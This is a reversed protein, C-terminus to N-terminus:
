NSIRLVPSEPLTLDAREEAEITALERDIAAILSGGSRNQSTGHTVQIPDAQRIQVTPLPAQRKAFATAFVKEHYSLPKDPGIRRAEAEILDVTWGAAEWILARHDIGALQPPIQSKSEIGVAKWFADALAKSGETLNSARAQADGISDVRAIADPIQAKDEGKDPPNVGETIKPNGGRKGNAKDVLAKEADRRMRRSYITGDDDRAFVAMGELEMLLAVCDKESIGALSALQKKDPRRGKVLLSGYPEAVHMLAMMEVWLGRAGISCSRLAEDARWDSPYFKM